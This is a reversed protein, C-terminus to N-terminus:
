QGLVERAASYNTVGFGLPNELRAEMRMAATAHYAFDLTAVWSEQVGGDLTRAFRVNATGAEGGRRAVFTIASVDVESRLGGAKGDKLASSFRDRERGATMWGVIRAAQEDGTGGIRQERLRVYRAIFFRDMAESDPLRVAELETVVDVLGSAHVRVIIPVARQWPALAAIAALSLVTCGVAVWALAWAFRKSRAVRRVDDDSWSPYEAVAAGGAPPPEVDPAHAVVGVPRPGASGRPPTERRRRGM